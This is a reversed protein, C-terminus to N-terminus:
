LHATDPTFLALGTFSRTLPFGHDHRPRARYHAAVVGDRLLPDDLTDVMLLRKILPDHQASRPLYVTATNFTVCSEWWRETPAIIPAGDHLRQVPLGPHACLNGCSTTMRTM